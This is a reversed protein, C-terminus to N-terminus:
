FRDYTVKSGRDHACPTWYHSLTGYHCTEHVIDNEPRQKVTTATPAPTATLRHQDTQGVGDTMWASVCGTRAGHIRFHLPRADSMPAFAAWITTSM